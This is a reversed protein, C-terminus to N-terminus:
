AANTREGAEYIPELWGYTDPTTGNFLGFFAQQLKKTVPGPCGGKLPIEDVSKVPTIEAATGTLFMEDALYLMERPLSQEVVEIGMDRALTIITDRTIGMLVSSSAPPTMLKGKHMLFINEGAGESMRGDSGLAIGEQFGRTKAERSVLYSSLYNGAAKAAVPITNPAVRQWSSVCVDIGNSLGDEGLYAGWEFAAIITDLPTDPSPTIGIGGYGYYCLPRIYASGLENSRLVSRCASTLEEVTYDFPMHYIRASDKMRAMHDTLRFGMPGNPTDYVRIGEFIATGYNLAHSLVHTTAEHWPVLEGNKWITKCENIPM